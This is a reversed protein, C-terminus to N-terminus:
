LSWSPRCPNNHVSYVATYVYPRLISLPVLVDTEFFYTRTELKKNNFEPLSKLVDLNLVSNNSKLELFKRIKAIHVM